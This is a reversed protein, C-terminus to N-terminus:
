VLDNTSASGTVSHEGAPASCSRKCRSERRPEGAADDGTRFDCQPPAARRDIGEIKQGEALQISKGRDCDAAATGATPRLHYAATRDLIPSSPTAGPPFGRSHTSGEDDTYVARSQRLGGLNVLARRLPVGTDLATIQGQLSATGTQPDSKVDRPPAQPLGSVQGVVAQGTVLGGMLLWMLLTRM